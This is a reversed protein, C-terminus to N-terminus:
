AEVGKVKRLEAVARCWDCWIAPYDPVVTPCGDSFPHLFCKGAKELENVAKVYAAPDPIGKMAQLTESAWQGLQDVPEGYKTM